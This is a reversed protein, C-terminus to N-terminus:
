GVRQRAVVQSGVCPDDDIVVGGVGLEDPEGVAIAHGALDDRQWGFQARRDGHEVAVAVRDPAERANGGVVAFEMILTECCDPHPRALFCQEPNVATLLHEDRSLREFPPCKIRCGLGPSWDGTVVQYRGLYPVYCTRQHGGTVDYECPALLARARIVGSAPM